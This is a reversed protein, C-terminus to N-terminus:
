KPMNIVGAGDVRWGAKTMLMKVSVKFNEWEKAKGVLTVISSAEECTLIKLGKDPYDQANFVPDFDLGLEPDQKKAAALLQQYSKKFNDTVLESRQLWHSATEQSKHNFVDNNYHTYANMFKDAVQASQQCDAHSIGSILMAFLLIALKLKM